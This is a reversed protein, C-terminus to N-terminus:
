IHSLTTCSRSSMLVHQHNIWSTLSQILIMKVLYSTKLKISMSLINNLQPKMLRKVLVFKEIIVQIVILADLITAMSAMYTPLVIMGNIPEMTCLALIKLALFAVERSTTIVIIRNLITKTVEMVMVSTVMRVTTQDTIKTKTKGRTSNSSDLNGNGQSNSKSKNSGSNDGVKKPVFPDLSEQIEMYDFIEQFTSTYHERGVERFLQCPRTSCDRRKPLRLALQM